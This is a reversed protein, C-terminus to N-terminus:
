NAREEAVWPAPPRCGAVAHDMVASLTGIDPRASKM